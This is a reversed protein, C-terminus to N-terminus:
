ASLVIGLFFFIKELFIDRVQGFTLFQTTVKGFTEKLYKEKSKSVFAKWKAWLWHVGRGTGGYSVPGRGQLTQNPPANVYIKKTSQLLKEQLYFKYIANFPCCDGYIDCIGISATLHFRSRLNTLTM